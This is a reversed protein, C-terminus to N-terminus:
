AADVTALTQLAQQGPYATLLPGHTLICLFEVLKYAHEYLNRELQLVFM